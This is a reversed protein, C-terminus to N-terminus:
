INRLSIGSSIRVYKSKPRFTQSWGQNWKALSIQALRFPDAQGNQRYCIFYSSCKMDFIFLVRSDPDPDTDFYFPDAWLVKARQEWPNWIVTNKLFYSCIQKKYIRDLHKHEDRTGNRWHSKPGAFRIRRVSGNRRYCVYFLILFFVNM